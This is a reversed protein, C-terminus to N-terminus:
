SVKEFYYDKEKAVIRMTVIHGSSSDILVILCMQHTVQVERLYIMRTGARVPTRRTVYDDHAGSVPWLDCTSAVLDGRKMHRDQDDMLGM